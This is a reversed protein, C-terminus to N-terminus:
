QLEVKPCSQRRAICTWSGVIEKSYMWVLARRRRAARGAQPPQPQVDMQPDPEAKRNQQNRDRDGARQQDPVIMEVREDIGVAIRHRLALRLRWRRQKRARDAASPRPKSGTTTRMGSPAPQGAVTM